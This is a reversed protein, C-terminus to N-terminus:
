SMRSELKGKASNAESLRGAHLDIHCRKCLVMTKRRRAIMRKEWESKGKLDKLKRVHHVEIQGEKRGCWECQRARLRQGLESYCRYRWTNPKVDLGNYVIAGRNVQKTSSVLEYEKISGDAKEVEIVFCNPGKKISKAVKNVSSRRKAALTHFFSTTTLRLIDHGLRTLNTALAYYNLFGRIEANYTTLIEFESLNLLARRRKGHWNNPNGYRKAFALCKDRPILLVFKYTTTRRTVLKGRIRYKLKKQGRWRKIDYGLFRVREKANTILTKEAALELKLETALFNHLWIKITEADAKSGVIGILFDDAYRVYYLRRFSPDFSDKAPLQLQRRKLAKFERWDGTREAKKRVRKKRDQVRSYEINLRRYKGSDFMAKMSAMIQDLENLYINSLIPSLNGGQPVGSYTKHYRWNDVYGAKLFQSILHLFRQDTIRKSLIRLLTDHQLSDFFSRIDGEVWWRTGRMTKVRLLATHCSRNPRFGHSTDAFTPEYITELIIKVVTQLLKDEFSPIGIPRQQGNAKPIYVRRVPKPKYCSTRLSEIMKEIREMGTGDITKGDVGQTMNGSKPAIREYAMLWLETNYLKQFLKDFKVEPKKAM